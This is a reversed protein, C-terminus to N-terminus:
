APLGTTLSDVLDNPGHNWACAHVGHLHVTVSPPNGCTGCDTCDDYTGASCKNDCKGNNHLLTYQAVQGNYGNHDKCTDLSEKCVGNKYTRVGGGPKCDYSDMGDSQRPRWQGHSCAAGEARGRCQNANHATCCSQTPNAGVCDTNCSATLTPRCLLLLLVPMGYAYAAHLIRAHM